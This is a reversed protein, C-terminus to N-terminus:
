IVILEKSFNNIIETGNETILVIDEIRVGFKDIMYIGPEISFAMGKELNRHNSEKIDPAEHVSYGIGHGLRTTFNQGYGASEIVGRAAKDVEPIFTGEVAKSEGAIVAELVLDYIKREEETVGGVFITRTMDSSLNKYKGGIDLLVVDKEQIVRQNGTYHPLASNPGTAVIAFEPECGEEVFFESIKDAVEKETMGPKIYGIIREMVKDNRASAEKLLELEESTKIIRMEELIKKGNVFKVDVKDMIELINFARATMNVAIKSGLLDEKNFVEKVTDTFFGNDFWTYVRDKGFVEVAEGETLINCIYFYSGDKKIFLGQFRECLMPSEGTLFKLEESPAIFIADLKEQNLASVLKDIFKKKM